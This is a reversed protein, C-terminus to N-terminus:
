VMDEDEEELPEEDLFDKMREKEDARDNHLEVSRAADRIEEEEGLTMKFTFRGTMELSQMGQRILYRIFPQDQFGFRRAMKRVENRQEDSIRLAWIRLARSPSRRM